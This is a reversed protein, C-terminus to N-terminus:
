EVLQRTSFPRTEVVRDVVCQELDIAVQVAGNCGIGRAMNVFHSGKALRNAVSAFSQFSLCAKGM